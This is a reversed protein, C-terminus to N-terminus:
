KLPPFDEDINFNSFKFEGTYKPKKSNQKNNNSNILMALRSQTKNNKNIESINKKDDKIAQEKGKENKEEKEEIKEDEKKIKPKKEVKKEHNKISKKNIKDKNLGIIEVNNWKNKNKKNKKDGNKKHLNINHLNQNLNFSAYGNKGDKKFNQKTYPFFQTYLNENIQEMDLKYFKGSIKKNSILLYKYLVLINKFSLSDLENFLEKEVVQDGQILFDRLIIIKDWDIGFNQINYLELIKKNDNIKDIVMILQYQTEKPLSIEKESIKNKKIYNIIFKKILEVFFNTLFDYDLEKIKINNEEEAEIYNNFTQKILYNYDGIRRMKKERGRFRGRKYYNKNGRNYEYFKENKPYTYIIEVDNMNNLNINTINNNDYKINGENNTKNKNERHQICRKNVKELFESFNFEDKKMSIDFLTPDEIIKPLNENVMKENLNNNKQNHKNEFHQILQKKNAFAIYLIDKCEKFPCCYHYLKNHQILNPLASYFIIRKDINKCIECMFHSSSMHKYLIEDNYYLDGCFICKHHPPIDEEIDGYLNHENIENKSYVKQESIFKKGDKVCVKCYFKQHYELLHNILNEYSDFPEEKVCYDIPCKFSKLKMSIEYSSIDTYYIDNSDNDQYFSSLDENSLEKFTRTETKPSIFVIDLKINCLPCKKDNYFTRNKLTCYYCIEKHNCKGISYYEINDGCVVCLMQFQEEKKDEM